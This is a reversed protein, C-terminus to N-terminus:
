STPRPVANRIPAITNDRPYRETIRNSAPLIVRKDRDRGASSSTAKQFQLFTPGGSHAVRGCRGRSGIAQEEDRGVDPRGIFGIEVAPVVALMDFLAYADGAEQRARTVHRAAAAALVQAQVSSVRQSGEGDGVVAGGKFALRRPRDGVQIAHAVRHAADAGDLGHRPEAAAALQHHQGQRHRVVRRRQNCLGAFDALGQGLCVAEDLGVQQHGVGRQARRQRAFGFVVALQRRQEDDLGAGLGGRM